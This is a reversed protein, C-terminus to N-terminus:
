HGERRTEGSLIFSVREKRRSLSCHRLVLDVHGIHRSMGCSLTSDPEVLNDKVLSISRVAMTSPSLREREREDQQMKHPCKEWFIFRFWIPIIVVDACLASVSRVRSFTRAISVVDHYSQTPRRRGNELLLRGSKLRYIFFHCWMKSINLLHRSTVKVTISRWESRSAM